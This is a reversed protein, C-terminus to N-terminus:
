EFPNPLTDVVVGQIRFDSYLIIPKHVPNSSRPMLVIKGGKRQFEKVTAADDILAIIQDGNEAISQQRVIMIDGDNINRQNMSDGVARLLFYRAGPKAIRKSVSIWVETNEEALLPLGCPAYGVLPLNIVHESHIGGDIEKMLRLNGKPSRELYGKKTLRDILLSASRPSKFGMHVSITRLSPTKGHYIITDRIFFLGKLEKPELVNTM